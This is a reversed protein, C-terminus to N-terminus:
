SSGPVDLHHQPFWWVRLIRAGLFNCDQPCCLHFNVGGSFRPGARQDKSCTPGFQDIKKLSWHRKAHTIPLIPTQKVRTYSWLGWAFGNIKPWKYPGWTGGIQLQYPGVLKNPLTPNLRIYCALMPSSASGGFFKVYWNFISMQFDPFSPFKSLM